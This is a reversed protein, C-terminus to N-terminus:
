SAFIRTMREVLDKLGEPTDGGGQEAITRVEDKLSTKVINVARLFSEPTGGIGCFRNFVKQPDTITEINRGDKLGFGPVSSPDAQLLNKIELKRDEIWKAAMSYRECFVSRQLPTWQAASVMPLPPCVIPLAAVLWAQHEACKGDLAARCFKCQVQGPIRPSNPDNSARVRAEMELLSRRLDEATYDCSADQRGFPKLINVSIEQPSLTLWLLVALDRLQQNTNPPPVELWGSKGDLVLARGSASDYLAVDFRGSHKLMRVAGGVPITNPDLREVTVFAPFDHWLRTEVLRMCHRPNLGASESVESERLLLEDAKDMEENTPERHPKSGTWLAHVVTGSDADRNTPPESLDRQAQFRGPCLKDAEANSASTWKGRDDTM